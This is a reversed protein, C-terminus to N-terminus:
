RFNIKGLLELLVPIKSLTVEPFKKHLPELLLGWDSLNWIILEIFAKRESFKREIQYFPPLYLFMGMLIILEVM